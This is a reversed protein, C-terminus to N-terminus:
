FKQFHSHNQGIAKGNSASVRGTCSSVRAPPYEYGVLQALPYQYGVLVHLLISM